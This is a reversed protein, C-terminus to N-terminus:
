TLLVLLHWFQRGGLIAPGKRGFVVHRIGAKAVSLLVLSGHAAFSLQCCLQILLIACHCVAIYLM